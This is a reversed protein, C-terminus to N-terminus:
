ISDERSIQLSCFSDTYPTYTTNHTKQLFFCSATVDDKWFWLEGSGGPHSGRTDIFYTAFDAAFDIESPLQAVTVIERANSTTTSSSSTTLIKVPERTTATTAYNDDLLPPTTTTTTTQAYALDIATTAAASTLAYAGFFFLAGWLVFNLSM